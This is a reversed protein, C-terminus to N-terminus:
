AARQCLIEEHEKGRVSLVPVPSRRFVKEATSGFLANAINTRGKAGMIVLDAKVKKVTELLEVWPVGIRFVREVQLGECGAEKLLRETKATRDEKQAAIYGKVSIGVGETEVKQIADLDRQNIVNVVVMPAGLAQALAGAYKLTTKSYDSFDIAVMIKEVLKM